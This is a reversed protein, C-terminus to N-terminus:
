PSLMVSPTELAGCRVGRAHKCTGSPAQRGLYRCVLSRRLALLLQWVAVPAGALGIALPRGCGCGLCPHRCHCSCEVCFIRLHRSAICQSASSHVAICQPTICRHFETQPHSPHLYRPGRLRPNRAPLAPHWWEVRWTVRACLASHTTAHHLTDHKHTFEQKM